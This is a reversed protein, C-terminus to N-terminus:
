HAHSAGKRNWASIEEISILGEYIAKGTVAEALGANELEELDARCSIGGSAILQIGPYQALMQRYLETSPGKLLGDKSIDTCLFRSFGLELCREMYTSLELPSEEQWGNVRLRGNLVDAGIVVRDPSAIEALRPLFDPERVAATGAIIREAGANLLEAAKDVTRIGGGIQIRIDSEKVLRSILATNVSEGRAGNLDVIHILQIGANRYAETMEEASVSYTSESNYDGRSLRVVKGNLLDIAPLLKM